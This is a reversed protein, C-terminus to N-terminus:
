AEVAIGAFGAAAANEITEPGVSPMDLDRDQGPKAAKVLVPGPGPTRYMACRKILADTGDKGEVDLIRGHQIAIAQGRDRSGHARAADMGKEIDRLAADDPQRSTMVGAPALLDAVIAQVGHLRFGRKELAARVARLLADDGRALLSGIIEGLVAWTERDPRLAFLSPRRVKGVLVIDHINQQHLAALIKGVKDMRTNMGPFKLLTIDDWFPELRIVYSNPHTQAVLHPFPGSGALIGLRTERNM